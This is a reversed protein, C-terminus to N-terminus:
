WVNSSAFWPLSGVVLGPYKMVAAVQNPEMFSPLIFNFSLEALYFIAFMALGAILLKFGIGEKVRECGIPRHVLVWAACGAVVLLLLDVVFITSTFNGIMAISSKHLGNKLVSLM